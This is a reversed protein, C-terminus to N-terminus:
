GLRPVEGALFSALRARSPHDMQDFQAQVGALEGQEGSVVRLVAAGLTIEVDTEPHVLVVRIRQGLEAPVTVRLFLTQGREARSAVAMLREVTSPTITVFLPRGSAIPQRLEGSERMKRLMDRVEPPPLRDRLVESNEAYSHDSPKPRLSTIFANWDNKLEPGAAFFQLGMGPGLPHEDGDKAVQRVQAMLDMPPKGNPIQIRLQVVHGVASPSSTRVFMGVRSVDATQLEQWGQVTKVQVQLSIPHRTYVRNPHM